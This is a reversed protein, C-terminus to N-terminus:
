PAANYPNYGNMALNLVEAPAGARSLLRELRAPFTAEQEVGYGFAVSDGLVVARWTGRPPVKERPRDRFGDANITYLVDGTADMRASAGPRLGYLWARDPRPEHLARLTGADREAGALRLGLEVGGVGLAIGLALLGLRLGPSSRAEADMSTPRGGRHLACDRAYGSRIGDRAALRLGGLRVEGQLSASPRRAALRLRAFDM